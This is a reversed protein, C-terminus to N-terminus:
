LCCVTFHVQDERDIEMVVYSPRRGPQRPLSISGPNVVARDEGCWEGKPMHTHGVVAFDVGRRNMEREIRDYGSYISYTHGHTIWVKYKGVQVTLEHPLGSFYDNNGGVIASPCDLLAEIYDESGETDGAHIFYDMDAHTKIVQELNGTRGHNDSVILIKM